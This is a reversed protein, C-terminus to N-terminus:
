IKIGFQQRYATLKTAVAKFNDSQELHGILDALTILPIISIKLYNQLEQIASLYTEGREQRDLAVVIGAVNAGAKRIFEVSERIATGRTIVDDVILIKGSLPAGVIQGGEGHSKAEKRNFAYPKNLGHNQSLFIATATVLPIGKYAPGFLMDFSFNAQSVAKAYLAGLTALAEGTTFAGLNFFYPSLRGSKLRFEGFRIVAHKLALEIFAKKLDQM